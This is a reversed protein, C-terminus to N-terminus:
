TLQPIIFTTFDSHFESMSTMHNGLLLTLLNQLPKLKEIHGLTSLQCNDFRHQSICAHNIEATQVQLSGHRHLHLLLERSKRIMEHHLQDRAQLHHSGFIKSGSQRPVSVLPSPKETCLLDDQVDESARVGLVPLLLTGRCISLDQANVNPSRM